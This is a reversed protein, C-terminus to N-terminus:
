AGKYTVGLAARHTDNLQMFAKLSDFAGVKRREVTAIRLGHRVRNPSRRNEGGHGTDGDFFDDLHKTPLYALGGAAVAEREPGRVQDFCQNIETHTLGARYTNHRQDARARRSRFVANTGVFAGVGEIPPRM